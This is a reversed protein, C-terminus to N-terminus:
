ESRRSASSAAARTGGTGSNARIREGTAKINCPLCSSVASVPACTASCVTEDHGCGAESFIGRGSIDRLCVRCRAPHQTTQASM